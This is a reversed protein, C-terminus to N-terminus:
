SPSKRRREQAIIRSSPLFVTVTTGKDPASEVALRGGHLSVMHQALPLGLGTGEYRKTRSSETQGFPTLALDIEEPRMGIGHDSVCFAFGERGAGRWSITVHGGRSSFKVANSLLNVLVQVMAQRDLKLLPAPLAGCPAIAVGADRALGGVLRIAEEVLQDAAVTVEILDFRGAEIRALDLIGNIINLLHRGAQHVDKLYGQQQPSLAGFYGLALAETIGLIGNLPTRLEHSMNALFNSKSRSADEARKMADRLQAAAHENATIDRYTAISRGDSMARHLVRLIRGNALRLTMKNDGASRSLALRQERIAPADGAAVIGLGVILDILEALDMGPAVVNAPLDLLALYRPNCCILKGADDYLCVGEEINALIADLIAVQNGLRDSLSLLASERAKRETVDRMSGIFCTEGNLCIPVVRLDIPLFRGDKTRGTVERTRGIIHPVATQLYRAVYHDHEAAERPPMIKHVNRGLMEQASYGFLASAARSFYLVTSKRDIIVIAETLSDFAERSFDTPLPVAELTAARDGPFPTVKSM